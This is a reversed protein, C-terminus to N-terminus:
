KNRNQIFRDNITLLMRDTLMSLDIRGGAATLATVFFDPSRRAALPMLALSVLVYIIWHNALSRAIAEHPLSLTSPNTYTSAQLYAILM